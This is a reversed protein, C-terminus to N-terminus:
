EHNSEFEQKLKLYQARRNEQEQIRQKLEFEKRQIEAAVRQDEEKAKRLKLIEDLDETLDEATIYEYDTGYEGGYYSEWVAVIAGDSEIQIKDPESGYKAIAFQIARDYILLLLPQTVTNINNM